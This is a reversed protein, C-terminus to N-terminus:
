QRRQNQQVRAENWQKATAIYGITSNQVFFELAVSSDQKFVRGAFKLFDTYVGEKEGMEKLKASGIEGVSKIKSKNDLPSRSEFALSAM